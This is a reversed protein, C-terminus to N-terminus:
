GAPVLRPVRCVRDLGVRRAVTRARRTLQDARLAAELAQGVRDDALLDRTYQVEDLAQELLGLWAGVEEQSKTPPKLERLDGLAEGGIATVSELVAVAGAATPRVIELEEFQRNAARCIGAADEVFGSHTSRGGGCGAGGIAALAM